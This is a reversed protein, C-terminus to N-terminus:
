SAKYFVSIAGLAILTLGLAHNWRIKEGLYLISFAFFVIVTIV